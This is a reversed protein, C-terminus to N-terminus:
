GTRLCLIVLSLSRSVCGASNRSCSFRKQQSMDFKGIFTLRFMQNISQKTKHERHYQTWFKVCLYVRSLCKTILRLRLRVHSVFMMSLPPSNEYFVLFSIFVCLAELKHVRRIIYKSQAMRTPKM